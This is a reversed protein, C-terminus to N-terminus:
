NIQYKFPIYNLKEFEKEYQEISDRRKSLLKLDPYKYNEERLLNNKELYLHYFAHYYAYMEDRALILFSKDKGENEFQCLRLEIKAKLESDQQRYRSKFENILNEYLEFFNIEELKELFDDYHYMLGNRAIYGEKELLEYSFSKEIGCGIDSDTWFHVLGKSTKVIYGAGSEFGNSKLVINEM